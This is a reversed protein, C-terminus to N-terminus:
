FFFLVLFFFSYGRDEEQLQLIEHPRLLESQFKNALVTYFFFSLFTALGVRIGNPIVFILFDCGCLMLFIFLPLFLFLFRGPFTVALDLQSKKKRRPEQLIPVM